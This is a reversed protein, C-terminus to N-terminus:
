IKNARRKRLLVVGTAVGAGVVTGVGAAILTHKNMKLIQSPVKVVVNQATTEVAVPPTNM